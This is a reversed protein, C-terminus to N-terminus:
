EPQLVIEKLYNESLILIDPQYSQVKARDLDTHVPGIALKKKRKRIEAFVKANLMDRGQIEMPTFYVDRNFRPMGELWASAMTLLQTIDSQSSGYIWLPKKEKLTSVIIDADSRIIVKDQLKESEIFHTLNQDVNLVNSLIDFIWFQAPLQLWAKVPILDESHAKLEDYTYLFTKPGRFKQPDKQLEKYLQSLTEEKATFFQGDQSMHLKLYLAGGQQGVFQTAAHFTGPEVAIVQKNFALLPHDYAQYTQQGSFVSLLLWLLFALILSAVSIGLLKM